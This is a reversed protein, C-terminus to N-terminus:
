KENMVVISGSKSSAELHLPPTTGGKTSFVFEKKLTEKTDRVVDFEPLKCSVTGIASRLTGEISLSDPVKVEVSGATTQLFATEAHPNQNQYAINGNVTQVDAKNFEGNVHVSGNITSIDLSQSAGESVIVQGNSTELDWEKGELQHFEIKGNATKAQIRESRLSHLKIRGNFTRVVLEDYMRQPVYMKVTAKLRKSPIRVTLNRDRTSVRAEKLFYERAEEQSEQKYVQAQCEIRVEEEEWAVVDLRGNGVEVEIRHVDVNEYQFIHNVKYHSGFNLDLDIKKLKDATEGIFRFIRDKKSGKQTAEKRQNEKERFSVDTTLATTSSQTSSQELEELMSYATDVDIDGRELLTLIHLREEKM